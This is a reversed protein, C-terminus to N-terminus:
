KGKCTTRNLNYQFLFERGRDSVMYVVEANYDKILTGLVPSSCVLYNINAAKLAAIDHVQSKEINILRTNFMITKGVAAVSNVEVNKNTMVPLNESGLSAIKKLFLEPGGAENVATHVDKTTSQSFSIGTTLLFLFIIRFIM